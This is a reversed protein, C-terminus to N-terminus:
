STLKRFGVGSVIRQIFGFLFQEGATILIEDSSKNVMAQLM